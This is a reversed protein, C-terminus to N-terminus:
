ELRLTAVVPIRDIDIGTGEAIPYVALEKPPREPSYLTARKWQGLAHVTIAEGAFDTFNLLHLLLSHGDRSALLTALTSSVNFLRVGFNKRVTAKYTLEWMPGLDDLQRRAPTLQGEAMRPFKWGAPPALVIGGARTFAELAEKEHPTAPAADVNLVIRVDRLAEPALRRRTIVRVPTHQVSIMDLLGASLLGGNDVDQVLALRSYPRYAGWEKREEFHALYAAMRRWTKIAAPERALLRRDLDDDLAVIWRVGAIAADGIAQLYRETPYIRGSPPRVGIWLAADSAARFFRLFGSNTDIWPSSTPGALVSGGHEIEIGPWLGQSTGTIADRTDLRLHYRGPLEIVALKDRLRDAVGPEFDGELVIGNMKVAAAHAAEAKGDSGPHLVGLTAVGRAAAARVFGADWRSTELLLCNIPTGALLELSQPDASSWRAPVWDPMAALLMLAFLM